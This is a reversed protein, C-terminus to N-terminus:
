EADTAVAFLSVHKPGETKVVAGAEVLKRLAASMKQTSVEMLKALEGCQAPNPLDQMMELVEGAFAAAAASAKSPKGSSSRVNKKDISAKLAELKERVEDSMTATALVTELAMSYTMKTM